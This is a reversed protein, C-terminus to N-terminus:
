PFFILFWFDVKKTLKQFLYSIESIKQPMLSVIFYYQAHAFKVSFVDLGTRVLYFYEMLLPANCARSFLTSVLLRVTKWISCFLWSYLQSRIITHEFHINSNQCILSLNNLLKETSPNMCVRKAHIILDWSQRACQARTTWSMFVISLWISLTMLFQINDTSKLDDTGFHKGIFLKLTCACDYCMAPPLYDFKRIILIHHLVRLVLQTSFVSLEINADSLSVTKPSVEKLVHNSQLAL